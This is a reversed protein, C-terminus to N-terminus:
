PLVRYPTQNIARIINAEKTHNRDFWVTIEGTDTQSTSKIFGPVEKLAYNVISTCCSKTYGQLRFTKKSINANNNLEHVTKPLRQEKQPAKCSMSFVLLFMSLYNKNIKM